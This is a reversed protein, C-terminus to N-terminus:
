SHGIEKKLNRLFSTDILKAYRKCITHAQQMSTKPNSFDENSMEVILDILYDETNKM